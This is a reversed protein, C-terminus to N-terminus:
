IQNLIGEVARILISYIGVYVLLTGCGLFLITVPAMISAMLTRAKRVDQKYLLRVRKLAEPLLGSSEGISVMGRFSAPLLWKESEMAEQLGHGTRVKESLRTMLRSYLPSTDLRSCDDLATDMPVGGDLLKELAASIHALNTKAVVRRVGIICMLLGSVTKDLFGRNRHIRTAIAYLIICVGAWVALVWWNGALWNGLDVLFRSSAPIPQGFDACIEAFTPVVKVCLFMGVLVQIAVVVSLYTLWGKVTCWTEQAAFIGESLEVLADAPAGIEENARV